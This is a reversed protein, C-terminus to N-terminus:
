ISVTCAVNLLICNNFITISFKTITKGSDAVQKDVCYTKSSATYPFSEFSLQKEEGGMQVRAAMVSPHSMGDGEYINITFISITETWRRDNGLFFLINKAKKTNPTKKLQEEVFAKASNLWYESTLEADNAKSIRANRGEVRSVDPHM